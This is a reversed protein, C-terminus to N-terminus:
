VQEFHADSTGLGLRAYCAQIMLAQNIADDRADHHVGTKFVPRSDEGDPFALDVATRVCRQNFYRFPYILGTQDCAYQLLKCDFDPSKACIRDPVPLARLHADGSGRETAFRWLSRLANQLNTTEGSVLRKIAADSQGFWWKVTGAEIGTSNKVADEIDISAVFSYPMLAEFTNQVYPNFLCAGIAVIPSSEKTGLTELDVMLEIHNRMPDRQNFTFAM